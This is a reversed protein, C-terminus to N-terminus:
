KISSEYMKVANNMEKLLKMNLEEAKKLAEDSIDAKDITPKYEKWIGDVISLQKKIDDKKCNTTLDKLTTEFLEATKKLSERNKDVDIGNAILLLEKTMKQTLMRQKGARNITDAVKPDLKSGSAKAYMGVAKNMEKLLPTNDKAIAELTAKDAKGAIVKDINEKFSKWLEKVKDLQALIEKNETKPLNLDKDGPL